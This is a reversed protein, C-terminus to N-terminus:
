TTPRKIAYAKKYDKRYRKEDPENENQGTTMKKYCGKSRCADNTHTKWASNDAGKFM